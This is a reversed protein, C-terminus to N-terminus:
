SRHSVVQFVENYADDLQTREPEKVHDILQASMRLPELLSYLTVMTKDTPYLPKNPFFSLGSSSANSAAPLTSTRSSVILNNNLNDRGSSNIATRQRMLELGFYELADEDTVLYTDLTIDAMWQLCACLLPVTKNEHLVFNALLKTQECCQLWTEVNSGQCVNEGIRNPLAQYPM